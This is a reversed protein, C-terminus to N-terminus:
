SGIEVGLDDCAQLVKTHLLLCLGVADFLIPDTASKAVSMTADADEDFRRVRLSLMKHMALRENKEKQFSLFM